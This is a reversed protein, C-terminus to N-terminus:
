YYGDEWPESHIEEIKGDFLKTWLEIVKEKSVSKLHRPKNARDELNEWIISNRPLLTLCWENEDTLSIGFHEGDGKDKEAYLNELKSLESIEKMEGFPYVATLTM